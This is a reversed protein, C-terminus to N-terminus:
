RPGGSGSESGGGDLLEVPLNQPLTANAIVRNHQQTIQATHLVEKLGNNAPNDALGATAAQAVSLLLNLNATQSIATAETPAIEVVRLKLSGAWHISALFTTDAALPLDMGLVRLSGSESFPLGIQGMGWAVSLLPMESYHEALLTSGSFPLAATRHRDLISHIQETSPANSIAIMDYGIQVVRVTRGESPLSFITHGDYNETSAAHAALYAALRKGDVKGELVMSYAVLGNSGNPNSMRHLAVAAEELDREWDIGTADIFSQYEPARVVPKLSKHLVARLPRLNVYVIGDSEPLLRAAEPPAKFRLYIAAALIVLVAAVIWLTRRTRKLM